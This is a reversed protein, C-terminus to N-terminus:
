DVLELVRGEVMSPEFLPAKELWHYQVTVALDQEGSAYVVPEVSHVPVRGPGRLARPLDIFMGAHLPGELLHGTLVILDRKTHFFARKVRFVDV